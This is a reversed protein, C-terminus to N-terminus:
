KERQNLLLRLLGEIIGGEDSKRTTRRKKVVYEHSEPDSEVDPEAGGGDSSDSDIAIVSM